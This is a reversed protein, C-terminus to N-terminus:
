RDRAIGIGIAAVVALAFGLVVAQRTRTWATKRAIPIAKRAGSLDSWSRRASAYLAGAPFGVILGILVGIVAPSLHTATM